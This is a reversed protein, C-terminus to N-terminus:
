WLMWAPLFDEKGGALMVIAPLLGIRRGPDVRLATAGVVEDAVGFRCSELDPLPSNESEGVLSGQNRQEDGLVGLGYM